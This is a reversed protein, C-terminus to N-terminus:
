AVVNKFVDTATEKTEDDRAEVYAVRSHDDVVTHRSCTGNLPQALQQMARGHTRREFARHKLGQARRVYRWGGGDPVKGLKKVDVHILGGPKDHEALAQLGLRSLLDCVCCVM